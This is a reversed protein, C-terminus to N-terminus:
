FSKECASKPAPLRKTDLHKLRPQFQKDLRRQEFAEEYRAKFTGCMRADIANAEIHQGTGLMVPISKFIVTARLREAKVSGPITQTPM